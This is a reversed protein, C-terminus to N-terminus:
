DDNEKGYKEFYFQGDFPFVEIIGYDFAVKCLYQDLVRSHLTQMLERFDELGYSRKYHNCRRCSPMYNEFVEVINKDSRGKLRPILHDVQMDQYQLLNGCYACRRGFKKWVKLRISKKM